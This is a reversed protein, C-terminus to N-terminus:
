LSYIINVFATMCVDLCHRLWSEGVGPGQESAVFISTVFCCTILDLQTGAKNSLIFLFSGGRHTHPPCPKFSPFTKSTQIWSSKHPCQRLHVHCFTPISNTAAPGKTDLFCATKNVNWDELAAEAKSM